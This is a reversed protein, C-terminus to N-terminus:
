GMLDMVRQVVGPFARQLVEGAKAYSNVIIEAKGRRAADLIQRAAKGADMAIPLNDMGDKTAQKLDIRRGLIKVEGLEFNKGVDKVIDTKVPGPNVLMVDVGQKALEARLGRTFGILAFKSTCYAVTFPNSMIGSVSAVNIIQGGGRQIMQPIVAYTTYLAGDFNVAMVKQFDELSQDQVRGFASIGANNVLVDVNGGYELGAAAILREAQSRDAVDTPIALVRAGNLRLEEAAKELKEAGRAALVLNAGEKAFCRALEFGIGASGGTIVVTKGHYNHKAM